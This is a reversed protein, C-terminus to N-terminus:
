IIITLHHHNFNIIILNRFAQFKLELFSNLLSIENMNSFTHVNNDKSYDNHSVTNCQLNLHYKM